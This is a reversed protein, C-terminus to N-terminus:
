SRAAIGAARLRDRVAECRGGARRALSAAVKAHGGDPGAVPTVRIYGDDGYSLVVSKGDRSLKGTKPFVEAIAEVTPSTWSARAAAARDEVRSTSETKTTM